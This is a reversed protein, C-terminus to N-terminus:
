ERSCIRMTRRELRKVQLADCEMQFEGEGEEERMTIARRGRIERERESEREREGGGERGGEAGRKRRGTWCESERKLV